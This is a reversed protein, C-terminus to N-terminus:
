RSQPLGSGAGAPVPPEDLWSFEALTDALRRAADRGPAAPDEGDILLQRREGRASVNLVYMTKEPLTEFVVMGKAQSPHDPGLLGASDVIRWLRDVQEDSLRRLAPPFSSESAGLGVASRLQRDPEMVYRAPRMARPTAAAGGARNPGTVTLSLWFDAPASAESTSVGPATIVKPTDTQATPKPDSSCGTLALASLVLCAATPSHQAM